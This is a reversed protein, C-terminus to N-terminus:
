CYRQTMTPHFVINTQRTTRSLPIPPTHLNFRKRKTKPFLLFWGDCKGRLDEPLDWQTTNGNTYCYHYEIGFVFILCIACDGLQLFMEGDTVSWKEYARRRDDDHDKFVAVQCSSVEEEQHDDPLWGSEYHSPSLVSEDDSLAEILKLTSAYESVDAAVPPTTITKTEHHARRWSLEPSKPRSVSNEKRRPYERVPRDRSRRPHRSPSVKIKTPNSQSISLTASLESSKQLYRLFVIVTLVVAFM